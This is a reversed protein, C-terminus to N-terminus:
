VVIMEEETLEPIELGRLYTLSVNTKKFVIIFFLSIIMGDTTIKKNNIGNIVIHNESSTFQDTPSKMTIPMRNYTVPNIHSSATLLIFLALLRYRAM